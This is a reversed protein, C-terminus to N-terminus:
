SESDEKLDRNEDTSEPDEKVKKDQIKVRLAFLFNEIEWALEDLDQESLLYYNM